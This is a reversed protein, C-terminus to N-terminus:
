ARDSPRRPYETWKLLFPIANTGISLVAKRAAEFEAPKNNSQEAQFLWDSLSRGQYRPERSPLLMGFLTAGFAFCALWIIRKRQKVTM